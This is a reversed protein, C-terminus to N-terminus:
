THLIFELDITGSPDYITFDMLEGSIHIIINKVAPDVYFIYSSALSPSDKEIHLLTVQFFLCTCMVTANFSYTVFASRQM